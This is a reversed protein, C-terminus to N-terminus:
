PGVVERIVTGLDRLSRACDGSYSSGHMVALTEPKLDALESLLRETKSTYPIYDNFSGRETNILHERARGVIDSETIPEVDGNHHFLDSCFLTAATEDYLLGADWCHPLNPTARFRYKHKGTTFTGGNEIGRVSRSAYDYMNVRAGVVSCFGTANPALALWDNLSGCEDVEFHSFGVWRISEPDIIKAVAERVSQFLFKQGTHWLLPEDDKVLFQNIQLNREPVFTSIRFVDNAIETIVAM